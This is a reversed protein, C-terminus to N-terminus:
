SEAHPLRLVPAEALTLIARRVGPELAPWLVDLRLQQAGRRPSASAGSMTVPQHGNYQFVEALYGYMKARQLSGPRTWPLGDPGLIELTMEALVPADAKGVLSWWGAIAADLASTASQVATRFRPFRRAGTNDLLAEPVLCRAEVVVARVEPELEGEAGIASANQLERICSATLVRARSGAAM